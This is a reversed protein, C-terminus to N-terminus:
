FKKIELDIRDQKGGDLVIADHITSKMQVLRKDM